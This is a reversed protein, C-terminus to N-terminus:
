SSTLVWQKSMTDTAHIAIAQSDIKDSAKTVISRYYYKTKQEEEEELNVNLM